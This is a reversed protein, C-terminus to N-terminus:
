RGGTLHDPGRPMSGLRLEFGAPHFVVRNAEVLLGFEKVGELSLM